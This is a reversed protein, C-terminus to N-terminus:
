KEEVIWWNVETDESVEDSLYIIFGNYDGNDSEKKTWSYAGPNDGFSTFIKSNATLATTDVDISRGDSGTNDDKGDNDEDVLVPTIIKTGITKADADNNEIVLAGTELIKAKFKGELLDVDGNLDKMVVNGLDFATYFESLTQVQETLNDMQNELTDTRVTLAAVDNTVETTSNELTTIDGNIDQFDNEIADQLDSVTTINQSVALDLSSIEDTQDNNEVQLAQIMGYEEQVAKVILPTLLGYDVSWMENPDEPAVVPYPYIQRLDQAIFGTSTRGDAIFEYDRVGIQMLDALSYGTPRINQKLRSDSATSYTTTTGNFTIEGVDTGDGDRFQILTGTGSNAGAQVQMGLRNTNNGDNYVEFAYDSAVDDVVHLRAGPTAAGLGIGVDGSANLNIIGNSGVVFGTGIIYQDTGDDLGAYFDVANGDFQVSTDEAVATGLILASESTNSTTITFDGNSAAAVTTYNSVDYSLRIANDTGFISLKVAPTSTGIGVNGTADILFPSTDSSADNVIFSNGTGTNTVTLGVGTSVTTSVNGTSNVQFLDGSGVTLLASPTTDGFGVNGAFSSTGTTSSVLGFDWGTGINIATETGAGATINSINAGYLTGAGVGQATINVGTQTGGTTITGTTVDVGNAAVTGTTQTINPTTINAGSFTSTGAGTNQVLAGGTVVFGRYNYASAGTNTVAPLITDVGTVSFGTATYNTSLDNSFGTLSGTLAVASPAASGYITGTTLANDVDIIADPSLDGVGVFGSGNVVFPTTDSAVDNIRLALNGTGTADHQILLATSGSSTGTNQLSLLSGINAANSGSLTITQLAGGTTLGTATSTIRLASGTTLGNANMTLLGTATTAANGTLTLLNGTTTMVGADTISAVTGTLTGSSIQLSNGSGATGTTAGTSAIRLLAGTSQAATSTPGTINIAGGSTLVAAGNVNIAMAYGTTLGAANMTLLGTTTTAASATLDLLKGTTTMASTNSISALTPTISGNGTVQFLSGSAAGATTNTIAGTSSINVLGTTANMTAAGTPGDINIAGGTTLTAAGAVNLFQAYGTTLGTANQTFLGTATTAANSTLDILSGTTTIVSTNAVRIGEATTSSYSVDFKAGTGPTVGLGLTDNTNDYYLQANDQDYIGSAGAFVVSGQTFTTTTGTGGRGTALSSAVSWVGSAITPVGTSASTDLNTGGRSTALQAEAGLSGTGTWYTVYDTTGGSLGGQGVCGWTGTGEDWGMVEGDACGQLLALETGSGQFELGSFSSTSGTSDISDVLDISLTLSPGESGAAGGTLGNGSALSGVYNGTTDTGLAVSNVAIALVGTSDVTADGSLSLFTPAAGTNAFLLQGNTGATTAGIPSTGNGYLVGFSTLTAAGTGGVNVPLTGTVDANLNVSASVTLTGNGGTTKVFGNTTLASFQITGSSAIGTAATIAGASDIQFADGTGVTFLGAPTSDGIGFNGNLYVGSYETGGQTGVDVYTGYITTSANAEGNVYIGYVTDANTTGATNTDLYYGYATATGAGGNDTNLLTYNGYTNITGGTKGTGEIDNFIGYTTTTGSTVVGTNDIVNSFGTTTQAATASQAITNKFATQGGTTTSTATIAVEIGTNANGSLTGLYGVTSGTSTQKINGIVDLKAGPTPAGIGVNGTADIVFPTIESVGAEDYVYFSNGSGTNIVGFVNSGTANITTSADLTMSDAFETFSLADADVESASVSSGLAATITVTNTAGGVTTIGGGAAITLTSGETIGQNTGTTGALTFLSSGSVLVTGSANPFTYTQNGSLDTVDFTGYFSAGASELISLESSANGLIIDFAGTQSWDSTLAGLAITPTGGETSSSGSIGSGATITAVYSGTTDTSLAVTDAGITVVGANTITADGSMTAFTPAGASVGLFIQGNTGASTVQVAGTTNGLLVGNATFTTAGTGGNGVPLTGTVESTLSIDTGLTSAVTITGSGNTVTIGSGQTLTALTYGTGNGILLTGNAASSGNVGTGGRSTDLQNEGALASTGTFYAVQGSTGSATPAGIGTVTDCTWTNATNDWSLIDNDACGQILTLENSGSGQFELGSFSSTAGTSDASGLVSVALTLTGGESGAAGGTIGNGNTITAVYNGTTDTTLAVSNAQITVVGANTITADGSMTAFSPAGASTGLFVQGSTGASTVQVAGSGNGYLVGNSTLTTAGTGGNGVPLTGTVETALDVATGLTSAVTITGSGNTITIGSGQTLTALSYGSGNGILLEGNAAASGDVGTGGYLSGIISGNWVASTFTQGGDILAVTGTADPFSYTRNASLDGVDLTGFFTAGTSELMQLESSANNLSIDFAGTQNWNSTLAGLAITPTGGETSSSGSIGSGATITAVYNGTTDTTLAVANAEITVVGTSSVITADGNMQVFTPAGSNNGVLIRGDAGANTVQIAGTGNGVLLRNATLTTAGTGGNGVPLTGTVEIALDVTTGLTAAITITGAGNTVTIGSGQTLTALTYGSGNGILLGGNSAASGDVGTGGRSTALQAEATLTNTGSWYAVQGTAGSGSIGATPAACIWVNTSDNWTLVDNDACGQLLTLENSGAGQFELGSFSSTSGTGDASDLLDIALTLTAGESGAAGGTIGSGNSLTAVYNGTTDTTLAVSNAGITVVGANTITADGSMTAFAAASGTNGLLLQGNTGAATVQVGGTGNGLVVGNSTLTTVGTGGNGVPLTGTVESALNIDTGLTSAITITGAGNTITIGSGQTLTALTYGSGNGILLAGNSAASGNVGTGGRSTALQNEGILSATGNFYAVQGSTGSAVAGGLGSIATCEWVNTSNNWALIDDEACGQVLTLENSGTGQFELGSFSSTSGVGDASDLLDVALTPTGGETSSSGSIGNGATITAVYNGTTDTTLTVANADITLVGANTITADGSMSAFAPASGTIGLLLQGSTGANTVQVSGGGNGVLLRNSTLTTTGTGGNGVPLTGTVETTLDVSTGLTTAVTITGSGNTITVGSGQTLTALTYGTGNGILLTGNSAASGDIGTGGRSTALQNEGVISSTGNFYAVQGNTGTGSIGATPSGCAWENTGDNWTLVDNDACGQLLTLENSGTGQFELGSFSATGGVGDAADLLDIALTLTAGESGASGGTLGNGNAVSAVYNGTTDTTLAVANSSITMVGTNNISADGSLTAFAPAVGTSGLFIQGNTGAATVQVASTGNGVVVGNSTLTTAGTGGNSVPLTGSVETTLSIDTGLTSAITISGAGNTVTIGSGQTIGSLTYNTGNGILLQGNTPTSALGTGGYAVGITTGNWIASTFTQGGDTTALTGAADPLTFSRDASLDGADLTAYYLGGAAELFSLESGANNLIIDFAGTQDWNSTLAGLAITPSAGESSASGSIGNGSTISTVYNGTTDTTLAVANSSITVVGANTITADGSM